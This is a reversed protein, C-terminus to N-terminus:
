IMPIQPFFFSSLPASTSSEVDVCPNYQWGALWGALWGAM